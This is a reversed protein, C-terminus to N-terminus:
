GHPRGRGTRRRRRTRRRGRGPERRGRVAERPSVSSGCIPHDRRPVAPRASRRRPGPRRPRRGPRPAPAPRRASPTRRDIQVLRAVEDRLRAGVPAHGCRDLRHSVQDGGAPRSRCMGECRCSSRSARESELSRSTPGPDSGSAPRRASSLQSQARVDDDGTRVRPSAIAVATRAIAGAPRDPQQHPAAGMGPHHRAELRGCDPSSRPPERHDADPDDVRPVRPRARDPAGALSRVAHDRHRLEARSGATAGARRGSRRSPRGTRAPGAPRRARRGRRGAM